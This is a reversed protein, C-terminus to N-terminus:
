KLKKLLGKTSYEFMYRISLLLPLQLTGRYLQWQAKASALKNQTMGTTTNYIALNEPLCYAKPTLELLKLWLAMDQRKRITPMYVKGFVDSNYVATLCGIVNSKLLQKYSIEPPATIVSGLNGDTLKQYYTYTFSYSNAEMFGIQNRLKDKHWLDDADLFAIYKGNAKKISNNRAVGAGSNESTQYLKIREDRSATVKAISVSEDTSSDDTILLEWNSYTQNIVSTITKELTEACNYCPTVISVLPTPTKNINM